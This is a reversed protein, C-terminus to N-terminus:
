RRPAPHAIADVEARAAELARARARADSASSFRFRLHPLEHELLWALQPTDGQPDSLMDHLRARINNAEEAWVPLEPRDAGGHILVILGPGIPARDANALVLEAPDSWVLGQEDRHPFGAPYRVPIGLLARVVDMSSVVGVARGGDDVVVLRHVNADSLARGAEHITADRHITIAPRTMREGVRAKGSRGILDRLSVVGLPRMEEDLVPIGTIRLALIALLADAVSEEPGISFLEPNIIEHVHKAM